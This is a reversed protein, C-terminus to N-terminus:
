QDKISISPPRRQSIDSPAFNFRGINIQEYEIDMDSRQHHMQLDDLNLPADERSESDEGRDRREQKKRQEEQERAIRERKNASEQMRDIM